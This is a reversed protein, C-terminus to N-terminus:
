QLQLRSAFVFSFAALGFSFGTFLALFAQSPDLANGNNVYRLLEWTILSFILFTPVAAFLAIVIAATRASNKM